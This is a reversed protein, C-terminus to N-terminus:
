PQRRVCYVRIDKVALAQPQTVPDIRLADQFGTQSEFRFNLTHFMAEDSIPLRVSNQESYELARTPLFFVQVMDSLSAKIIVDVDLTTCQRMTQPQGTKVHIQPDGGVARFGNNGVPKLQVLVPKDGTKANAAADADNMAYFPAMDERRKARPLIPFYRVFSAGLKLANLYAPYADPVLNTFGPPVLGLCRIEGGKELEDLLCHALPLREALTERHARMHDYAGSEAMLGALLLVLM